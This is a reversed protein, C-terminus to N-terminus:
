CVLVSPVPLSAPVRSSLTFVNFDQIPALSKKSRVKEVKCLKFKLVCVDLYTSWANCWMTSCNPCLWSFTLNAERRQWTWGWSSWGVVWIYSWPYVLPESTSVGIRWPEVFLTLEVTWAQNCAWTLVDQQEALTVLILVLVVNTSIVGTYLQVFQDWFGTLQFKTKPPQSCCLHPTFCSDLRFRLAPTFFTVIWMQLVSESYWFSEGKYFLFKTWKLERVM